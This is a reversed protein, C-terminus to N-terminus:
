NKITLSIESNSSCLLHCKGPNTKMQNDSFWPFLTKAANELKQIVEEISNGTTYPMNDDAYSAIGINELNLFLDCLFINFLLPGLISWQPVGFLNEEWSSYKSNIITRQMRNKLYSHVFRLASISLGYADLKAILLDHSLFDFAKSLDSLLAEFSKKNEIASKWTELMLVLCHEASFGKRFGYHYKSFFYSEYSENIREHLKSINSFISVPRYNNKASKSDKKHVPTIDARKM